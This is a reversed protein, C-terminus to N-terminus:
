REVHIRYKVPLVGAKESGSKYKAVRGARAEEASCHGDNKGMEGIM